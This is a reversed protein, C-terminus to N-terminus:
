RRGVGLLGLATLFLVFGGGMILACGCSRALSLFGVAGAHRPDARFSPDDVERTVALLFLGVGVVALAVLSAQLYSYPFTGIILLAV